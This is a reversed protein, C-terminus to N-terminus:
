QLMYNENYHNVYSWLVRGNGVTSQRYQEQRQKEGFQARRMHYQSQLM